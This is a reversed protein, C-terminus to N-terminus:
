PMPNREISSDMESPATKRHPWQYPLTAGKSLGHAFQTSDKDSESLSLHEYLLM